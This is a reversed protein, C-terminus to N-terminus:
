AAPYRARLPHRLEATRVAVRHELTENAQRLQQEAHQRALLLAQARQGEQMAHWQARLLGTTLLTMGVAAMLATHAATLMEPGLDGHLVAIVITPHSLLALMVFGHGRRPEMLMTRAFLMAWALLFGAWVSLGERRSLLESAVGAFTLAAVVAALGNLRKAARGHVGAYDLLGATCLVLGTLVLAANGRQPTAMLPEVYTGFAVRLYYLANVAFSLGLLLSWRKRLLSWVKTFLVALLGQSLVGYAAAMEHTTM